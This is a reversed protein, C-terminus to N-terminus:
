LQITSQGSDNAYVVISDHVKFVPKDWLLYSNHHYVKGQWTYTYLIRYPSEGGYRMDAQRYVNEVIGNIKTGNILLENHLKNKSSALVKLIAQVILFVIGLLLFAIGMMKPEQIMSYSTPKLVSIYSLLGMFIFM